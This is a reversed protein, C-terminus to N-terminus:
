LYTIFKIKDPKFKKLGPLILKGLEEEIYDFNYNIDNYNRYNIKNDDRFINRISSSLFLENM